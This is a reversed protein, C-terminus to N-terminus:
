NRPELDPLKLDDIKARVKKHLEEWQAPTWFEDPHETLGVMSAIKEAAFDRVTIKPITFAACPGDFKKPSISNDRLAPDDLLAALFALRREHNRSGIYTYCMPNMMEMRLGVSSRRATRLYERWLDDEEIQVVVHTLAAEPCTWYPGPVDAPLKKLIPLLLEACNRADLRALVQLVCRRHALPGRQAFEALIKVRTEMPLQADAIAEALGFPQGEPGADKSFVECLGSLKGPYKQAIARAAVENISKIKGAQREFLSSVLTEEEGKQKNRALWDRFAAADPSGPLGTLERLLAEALDGVRRIRAPANAFAPWAGATLRRDGLLAILDPVADRGRLLIVRSLAGAKNAPDKDFTGYSRSQNAIRALQLVLAETSDVAPPRASVTMGLDDLLAARENTKLGPFEAFLANMRSQIDPWPPQDQLLERRLHIFIGSALLLAPDERDKKFSDGFGDAEL